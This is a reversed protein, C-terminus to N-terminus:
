AGANPSAPRAAAPTTVRGAFEPPVIPEATVVGPYDRIRESPYLNSKHYVSCGDHMARATLEYIWRWPPRWEPTQNSKSAGGIVMWDFLNCDLYIEELMPEVSVWVTAMVNDLRVKRMAKEAIKVRAQTDVSTGLWANEPYEFEVMRQPFKTLFLFNWQPNERVTALVAEIWEKPVWKGFLDAMSCVFINKFGVDTQAAEPVATHAPAGLRAPMISPEFGQAYFRNAIDRAYCYSCNHLCGTVPNWSWRAWEINDSDQKNLKATGSRIQLVAERTEVSLKKWESLTIGRDQSSEAHKPPHTVTDVTARIDAATATGFDVKAAVSRQVEPPFRVLERAQAETRPKDVNTSLNSVVQAADMLQYARPRSFHWRKECYEEFTAHTARYLRGNRIELLATGVEIFTSLGREIIAELQDLNPSASLENM